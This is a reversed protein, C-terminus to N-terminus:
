YTVSEDQHNDNLLLVKTQDLIKDKMSLMELMGTSPKFGSMLKNHLTDLRENERIDLAKLAACCM